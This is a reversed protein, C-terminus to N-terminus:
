GRAYKRLMNLVARFDKPMPAEIQISQGAEDLFTLRHAHLTLRSILPREEGSSRYAKKFGSLFIGPPQGDRAPNYLRDIALPLGISKLHVRIQHTKGTKPFVRLLTYDRFSEEVNWLTLALRGGHRLITMRRPSAPHPGIPADITGEQGTPRGAVLAIYEKSITNNQFQHSLHRQTPLNKAFLLVGSTDKDLRHVVRLRPDATGTWPLNLQDALQALVCDDEGRGPISALGAPKNVAAYQETNLLLDVPQAFSLPYQPLSSLVFPCRSFVLSSLHVKPGVAVRRLPQFYKLINLHRRTATPGFTWREWRGKGDTGEDRKGGSGQVGFGSGEGWSSCVRAVTIIRRSM